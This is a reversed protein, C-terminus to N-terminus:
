RRREQEIKAAVSEGSSIVRISRSDDLSPSGNPSWVPSSHTSSNNSTSGGRSFMRAMRSNLGNDEMPPTRFVVLPSTHVNPISGLSAGGPAMTLAPSGSRTFNPPHAALHPVMMAVSALDAPVLPSRSTAAYSMNNGQPSIASAPASPVTHTSM